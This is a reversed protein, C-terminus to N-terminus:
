PEHASCKGKILDMWGCFKMVMAIITKLYAGHFYLFPLLEFILSALTIIKICQGGGQYSRDVWSIEYGYSASDQLYARSLSHPRRGGVRESVVPSGM